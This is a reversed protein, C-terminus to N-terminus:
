VPNQKHLGRDSVATVDALFNFGSKSRFLFDPRRRGGIDPEYQVTGVSAAADLIVLEWETALYNDSVKNLHNCFAQRQPSSLYAQSSSLIRQLVRRPFLAM